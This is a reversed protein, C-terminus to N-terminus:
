RVRYPPRNSPRAGRGVSAPGSSLTTHESLIWDAAAQLVHGTTNESNLKDAAAGPSMGTNRLRGTRLADATRLGDHGPPLRIAGQPRRDSSPGAQGLKKLTGYFLRQPQSAREFVCCTNCFIINTNLIFVGAGGGRLLKQVTATAEPGTLPIEVSGTLPLTRNGRARSVSAPEFLPATRESRIRDAAALLVHRTTNESTLKDM